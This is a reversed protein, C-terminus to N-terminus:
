RNSPQCNPKSSTKCDFRKLIKNAELLTRYTEQLLCARYASVGVSYRSVANICARARDGNDYTDAADICPPPFAPACYHFGTPPSLSNAFIQDDALLLLAIAVSLIM